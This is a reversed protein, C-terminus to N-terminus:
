HYNHLLFPEKKKRSIAYETKGAGSAGATFIETKIEQTSFGDLNKDLFDKKSLRKCLKQGM